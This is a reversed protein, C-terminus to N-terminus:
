RQKWPRLVVSFYPRGHRDKREYLNVWVKTGDPIGETVLVGTFDAHRDEVKDKNKFCAAANRRTEYDKNNGAGPTQSQTQPTWNSKGAGPDGIRANQNEHPGM